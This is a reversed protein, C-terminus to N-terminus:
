DEDPDFALEPPGLARKTRDTRDTQKPKASPVDPNTTSASADAPVPAAVKPTKPLHVFMPMGRSSIGLKKLIRTACRPCYLWYMEKKRGCLFCVGLTM